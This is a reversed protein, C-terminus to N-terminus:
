PKRVKAIVVSTLLVRGAANADLGLVKRQETFKIALPLGVYGLGFIGIKAYQLNM